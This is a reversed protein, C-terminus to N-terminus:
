AYLTGYFLIKLLLGRPPPVRPTLLLYIYTNSVPADRLKLSAYIMELILFGAPAPKMDILRNLKALGNHSAVM